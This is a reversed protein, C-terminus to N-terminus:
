YACLPVWYVKVTRFVWTSWVQVSLYLSVVQLQRAFLYQM